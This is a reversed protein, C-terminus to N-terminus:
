TGFCSLIVKRWGWGGCGLPAGRILVVMEGPPFRRFENM